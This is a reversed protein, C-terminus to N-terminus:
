YAKSNLPHTNKNKSGMLNNTGNSDTNDQQLSNMHHRM